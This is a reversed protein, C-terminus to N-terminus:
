YDTVAVLIESTQQTDKLNIEDDLEEVRKEINTPEEGHEQDKEITDPSAGDSDNHFMSADEVSEKSEEIEEQQIPAECDTKFEQITTSKGGM